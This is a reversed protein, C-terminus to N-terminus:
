PWGSEDDDHGITMFVIKKPVGDRSYADNKVNCQIGCGYRQKPKDNPDDAARRRGFALEELPSL